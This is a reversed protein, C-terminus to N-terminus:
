THGRPLRLAISRVTLVHEMRAATAAQRMFFAGAGEVLECLMDITVGSFDELCRKICLFYDDARM